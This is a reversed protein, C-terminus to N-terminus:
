IHQSSVQGSSTRNVQQNFLDNVLADAYLRSLEAIQEKRLATDKLILAHMAFMSALEHKTLDNMGENSFLDILNRNM